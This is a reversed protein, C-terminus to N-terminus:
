FQTNVYDYSGNTYQVCVTSIPTFGNVSQYSGGIFNCMISKFKSPSIKKMDMMSKKNNDNLSGIYWKCYNTYTKNTILLHENEDVKGKKLLNIVEQQTPIIEM